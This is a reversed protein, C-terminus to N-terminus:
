RRIPNYWGSGLFFSLEHKEEKGTIRRGNQWGDVESPSAGYRWCRSETHGFDGCYSCYPFCSSTRYSIAVPTNGVVAVIRWFDYDGGDCSM